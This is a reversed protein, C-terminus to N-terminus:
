KSAARGKNKVAEIIREYAPGEEEELQEHIDADFIVNDGIHPKSRPDLPPYTAAGEEGLVAGPASWMAMPLTFEKDHHEHGRGSVKITFEGASENISTVKAELRGGKNLNAM